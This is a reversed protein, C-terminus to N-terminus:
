KDSSDAVMHMTCDMRHQLTLWAWSISKTSAEGV